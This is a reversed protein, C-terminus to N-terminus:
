RECALVLRGRGAVVGGGEGGGRGPGYHLKGSLGGRVM